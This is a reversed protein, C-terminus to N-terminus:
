DFRKAEARALGLHQFENRFAGGVLDDAALEPKGFAGHLSM